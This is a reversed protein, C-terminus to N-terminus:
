ATPKGLIIRKAEEIRKAIFEAILKKAEYGNPLYKMKDGKFVM